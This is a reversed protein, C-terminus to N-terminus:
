KRSGKREEVQLQQCTNALEEGSSLRKEEEESLFLWMKNQM